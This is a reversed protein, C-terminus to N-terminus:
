AERNPIGTSSLSILDCSTDAHLEVDGVSPRSGTEGVDPSLSVTLTSHLSTFFLRVVDILEDINM